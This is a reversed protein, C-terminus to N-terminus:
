RPIRPDSFQAPLTDAEELMSQPWKMWSLYPSNQPGPARVRTDTGKCIRHFALSLQSQPGLFGCATEGTPCDWLFWDELLAAWPEQLTQGILCFNFHQDRLAQVWSYSLLAEEMNEQNCLQLAFGSEHVPFVSGTEWQPRSDLITAM